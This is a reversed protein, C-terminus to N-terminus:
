CIFGNVRIFKEPYSKKWRWKELGLAAQYFRDLNSKNLARGTWKGVIADEKLGNLKQFSRLQNMFTSDDEKTEESLFSHGMLAKNAAEYCIVSDEKFAPIEYHNTDLPYEDLFKALGVQLQKYDWFDPEHSEVVETVSEGNKIRDLESPLEYDLSDKKWVYSYDVPDICGVDVHTTLLFFANTLLMEVDILSSDKLSSIDAFNYMEPMLGYDKSNEVLGLMEQGSENLGTKEIWIPAFSSNSYYDLVDTSAM